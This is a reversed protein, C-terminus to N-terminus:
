GVIFLSKYAVSRDQIVSYSRQISERSYPLFLNGVPLITLKIKTVLRTSLTTMLALEMIGTRMREPRHHLQM